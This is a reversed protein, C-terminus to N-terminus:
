LIQLTTLLGIGSWALFTAVLPFAMHIRGLATAVVSSILVALIYTSGIITVTWSLHIAESTIMIVFVPYMFTMGVVLVGFLIQLKTNLPAQVQVQTGATGTTETNEITM